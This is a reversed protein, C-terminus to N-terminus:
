DKAVRAIDAALRRLAEADLGDYYGRIQCARDVLVVYSSHNAPEGAEGLHLGDVFLTQVVEPAATAFHWRNTDAGYEAAFTALVSPTDTEPDVTVSLLDFQTYVGVDSQLKRLNRTITPCISQCSTFFVNAIWVKGLLDDRDLPSGAADTLAFAPVEGLAPLADTTTGAGRGHLLLAAAVGLASALALFVIRLPWSRFVHM